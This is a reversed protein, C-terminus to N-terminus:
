DQDAVYIIPFPMPKSAPVISGNSTGTHWAVVWRRDKRLIQSRLVRAFDPDIGLDESGFIEDGISRIVPELSDGAVKFARNAEDSSWVDNWVMKLRPNDVFTEKLILQVLQRSEPDSAIEDAVRGLETRIARNAAIDQMSRQIAVVVDDMHKELVPVAEEDVFRKWEEQVLDKRPLPTKDYIARWGFRFISARDWIEKGIAEAPREGHERVIPLIERKALPILRERVVQDNWREVAEDIEGRHRAVAARFEDEIVPLSEQLTQRVLPVFTASLNEGHQAMAIAIRDQIRKRKAPPMLTAIVEGLRGSAHHQFLQCEDPHINPEYWSLRLRRQSSPSRPGNQEGKVSSPVSVEIVEQVLGVQRHKEPAGPKVDETLFIPDGIQLRGVPDDLEVVTERRSLFGAVSVATRRARSDPREADLPKSLTQYSAVSGLAAVCVWFLLGVARKRKRNM